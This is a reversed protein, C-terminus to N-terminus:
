NQPAVEDAYELKMWNLIDLITNELTDKLHDHIMYHWFTREEAQLGYIMFLYQQELPNTTYEQIHTILYKTAQDVLVHQYANELTACHNCQCHWIIEGMMRAQLEIIRNVPLNFTVHIPDPKIHKM